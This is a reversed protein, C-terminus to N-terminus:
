VAAATAASASTPTVAADPAQQKKLNEKKAKRICSQRCCYAINAGVMLVIIACSVFFVWKFASSWTDINAASSFFERMRTVPIPHSSDLMFITTHATFHGSTQYELMNTFKGELSGGVMDFLVGNFLFYSKHPKGASDKYPLYESLM